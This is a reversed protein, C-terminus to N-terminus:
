PLRQLSMIGSVDMASFAARYSGPHSVGSRLLHGMLWSFPRDNSLGLHSGRTFSLVKDSTIPARRHGRFNLLLETLIWTPGSLGGSWSGM